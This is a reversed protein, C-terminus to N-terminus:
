RRPSRRFDRGVHNKTPLSKRRTWEQAMLRLLASGSSRERHAAPWMSLGVGAVSAWQPGDAGTRQETPTACEDQGCRGAGLAGRRLGASRRCSARNGHRNLWGCVGASLPVAGRRGGAARAVSCSISRCIRRSIWYGQINRSINRCFVTCKNVGLCGASPWGSSTSLGHLVLISGSFTWTLHACPGRGLLSLVGRIQLLRVGPM